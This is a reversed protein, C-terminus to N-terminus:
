ITEYPIGSRQLYKELRRKECPYLFLDIRIPKENSIFHFTITFITQHVVEGRIELRSVEEMNIVTKRYLFIFPSYLRIRNRNISVVRFFLLTIILLIISIYIYGYGYMERFLFLFVTMMLLALSSSMLGAKFSKKTDTTMKQAKM